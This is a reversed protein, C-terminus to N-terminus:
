CTDRMHTRVCVYSYFAVLAAFFFLESKAAL